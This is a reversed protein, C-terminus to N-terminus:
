VQDARVKVIRWGDLLNALPSKYVSGDASSILKREAALQKILMCSKNWLPSAQPPSGPPMKSSNQQSGFAADFSRNHIIELVYQDFNGTALPVLHGTAIDRISLIIGEIARTPVDEALSRPDYGPYSNHVRLPVRVEDGPALMRPQVNVRPRKKAKAAAIKKSAAPAKTKKQM